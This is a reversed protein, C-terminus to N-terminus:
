IADNFIGYTEEFYKVISVVSLGLWMGLLGGLNSVFTEINVRPVIEDVKVKWKQAFIAVKGVGKLIELPDKPSTGDDSAKLIPGSLISRNTLTALFKTVGRERSLSPKNMISLKFYKETCKPHCNEECNAVTELFNPTNKLTLNRICERNEANELCETNSINWGNSPACNCVEYYARAYCLDDCANQYYETQFPVGTFTYTDPGDSFRCKSKEFSQTQKIVNTSTSIIYDDLPGVFIGDLVSKYDEGHSVAVYAGLSSTYKGVNIEPDFYLMFGIANDKGFNKTSFTAEYCPMSGDFTFKFKHFCDEIKPILFCSMMFQDLDLKFAELFRSSLLYRQDVYSRFVWSEEQFSDNVTNAHFLFEYSKPDFESGNYNLVKELDVFVNNCIKVKIPNDIGRANIYNTVTIPDNNKYDISIATIFIALSLFCGCYLSFHFLKRLSAISTINRCSHFNTPISALLKSFPFRDM